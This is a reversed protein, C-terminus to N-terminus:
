ICVVSVFPSTIALSETSSCCEIEVPSSARANSGIRSVPLESVVRFGTLISSERSTWDLCVGHRTRTPPSWFMKKAVSLEVSRARETGRWYGQSLEIRETVPPAVGASANAAPDLQNTTGSDWNM